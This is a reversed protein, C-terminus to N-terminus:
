ATAPRVTAMRGQAPGNGNSYGSPDYPGNPPLLGNNFDTARIPNDWTSRRSTTTSSRATGPRRPAHGEHQGVRRRGNFDNTRNDIRSRCSTRTTSPSRRAGPSTGPRAAGDLVDFNVDRGRTAEYVVGFAATDRQTQLDFREGITNYISRNALAQPRRRRPAARLPRRAPRARCASARHPKTSPGARRQAPDHLTLVGGDTVDVAHGRRLQLQAPDLRLPLQVEGQRQRLRRHLAPRPLRREVGPTSCTRTPEERNVHLSSVGTGCTVTASTAHQMATPRRQRVASTSPGASRRVTPRRRRPKRQAATDPGIGIDRLVAPAGCQRCSDTACQMRRGVAPVSQRRPTRAMFRSTATRRLVQGYIKNANQSNKLVFGDYVTPPHRSTVHCRQCLFPPKAVLMRDNNSGHPDHCTTCSEAVPAHEWLFPGASRPTAARAARM